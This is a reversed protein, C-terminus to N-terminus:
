IGIESFSEFLIMFPERDIKLIREHQVTCTRGSDQAFPGQCPTEWAHQSAVFDERIRLHAPQRIRSRIAHRELNRIDQFVPTRSNAGGAGFM